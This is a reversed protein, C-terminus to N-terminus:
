FVWQPEEEEKIKEPFSMSVSPDSNPTLATQLLYQAFEFLMRPDKSKRVSEKYMEITKLRPVLSADNEGGLYKKIMQHSMDAVSENTSTLQAESNTNLLYLHSLDVSQSKKRLSRLNVSATSMNNKINMKRPNNLNTTSAAIITHTTPLSASSSAKPLEPCNLYTSDRIKKPKIKFLSIDDRNNSNLLSSELSAITRSNRMPTSQSKSYVYNNMNNNNIADDNHPLNDQITVKDLMSNTEVTESSLGLGLSEISDKLKTFNNITPDNIRIVNQNMQSDENYGTFNPQSNIKGQFLKKYPHVKGVEDDESVLSM